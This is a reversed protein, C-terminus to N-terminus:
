YAEESVTAALSPDVEIKLKELRRKDASLVSIRLQQWTCSEGEEPIRGFRALVFGGLTDYDGDEPLNYSFQENLDDIHARADVELEGNNGLRVLQQEEDDYEDAIEGVIEELIDEMTVLGAVGSYEDVVIALQVQRRKMTELLDTIGKTEPVYFPERVIEQLKPLKGNSEHLHRLLDKAYLIGVIDDTSEGIVPIRSHRADLLQQLATELSVDAQITIMDTRPTMIGAVDDDHLEMVRQIMTHTESKIVGERRGEDVVSRIEESLVAADAHDPDPVGFIRHTVRDLRHSLAVLPQGVALLCRLVPWIGFLYREGWVRAVAWPIVVLLLTVVAAVCLWAMIRVFWAEMRDDVPVALESVFMAGFVLLTVAFIAKSVLQAREYQRLITGFRQEHSHRRCIEALRSRSFDGLSCCALAALFAVLMTGLMLLQTM